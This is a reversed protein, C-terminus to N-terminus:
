LLDRAATFQCLTCLRCPLNATNLSVPAGEVEEVEYSKVSRAM